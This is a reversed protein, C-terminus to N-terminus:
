AEKATGGITRLKAAEGRDFEGPIVSPEAHFPSILIGRSLCEGFVRAHEAEEYEPYLWPGSRTFLGEIFPDITSWYGENYRARFSVLEALARAALAQKLAPIGESASEAAKLGAAVSSDCDPGAAAIGFSWLAPLPLEVLVPSAKDAPNAMFRIERRHEGFAAAVRSISGPIGTAASELAAKADAATPFFYFRGYGPLWSDLAKELRGTWVSPFDSVLGMDICAKALAGMGKNKRGLLAKGGESWFDLYRSGDLAYLRWGRARHIIPLKSEMM